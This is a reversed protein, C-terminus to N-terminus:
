SGAACDRERAAYRITRDDRFATATAAAISASARRMSGFVIMPPMVVMDAITLRACATHVSLTHINPANAIAANVNDQTPNNLVTDHICRSPGPFNGQANRQTCSRSVDCTVHQTCDAFWKGDADDGAQRQRRERRM